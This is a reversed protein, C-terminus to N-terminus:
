KKNKEKKEQVEKLGQQYGEMDELRLTTLYLINFPYMEPAMSRMNPSRGRGEFRLTHKGPELVHTDLSDFVVDMGDALFDRPGGIPKGDIFPQYLGSMMSHTLAASVVYHGKQEVEFDIEISAEPDGSIYQVGDEKTLIGAPDVRVDLNAAETVKYPPIRDKAPPIPDLGAAPTQYWYAVSSVWDWRDLFGGLQELSDTFISGKHEIQVKLSKKFPVPDPIHWRYASVRDGAFYGEWVPVGYYPKCFRRFGWADCFYDESGTGSLSPYEEGDVYFRDDGEGFWGNEMQFVNYLTGAYHGRGSTELITYDGPKAPFEQRYSAHFYVTDEPLSEHKEWDVYYYFSDCDYQESENTVTIKASKFFPMRWYTVRARGNSSVASVASTYDYMAGHGIGFFDALPVQVSPKEAGDWYARLVLSRGHFPDYSGVTTWIHNVSGPGELDAIVLTEGKPISRADGNKALDEAASSSRKATFEQAQTLRDLQDSMTQAHAASLLVLSAAIWALSKM